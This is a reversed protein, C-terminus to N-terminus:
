QGDQSPCYFAVVICVVDSVTRGEVGGRAGGTLLPVVGARRYYHIGHGSCCGLDNVTEDDVDGRHGLSPRCKGPCM